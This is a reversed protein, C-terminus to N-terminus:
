EIYGLGRLRAAILQEEQSTYGAGAEVQTSDASWALPHAARHAPAFLEELVRGDLDAPIRAGLAYLLTPAIDALSPKASLAPEGPAEGSTFLPGSCILVGERAHQSDRLDLFLNRASINDESIYTFYRQDIEFLLDPFDELYEGAFVEERRWVRGVLPRDTRPERVQRLCAILRERAAEYEADAVTGQPDTGQRNICIGAINGGRNLYAYAATRGYDLL